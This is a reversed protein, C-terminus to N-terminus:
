GEEDEMQERLRDLTVSPNVMERYIKGIDDSVDLFRNWEGETKSLYYRCSDAVKHKKSFLDIAELFNSSHTTILITLDFEKQLLVIVEAYILEWEPHLHIEPEDLILVDKEKLLGNELLIRLILFSKIGTSLNSLKIPTELNSDIALDNDFAVIKGEVVSHFMEHLELHHLKKKAELIEFLRDFHFDYSLKSILHEEISPVRDFDGGVEERNKVRDLVFPNDIYFAEHLIGIKSELSSCEHQNFFLLLESNQIELEIKASSVTDRLCNVQHNFIKSFYRTIVEKKIEFDEYKMKSEAIIKANSLLEERKRESVMLLNSESFFHNIIDKIEKKNEFIEDAIKKSWFNVVSLERVGVYTTTSLFFHMLAKRLEECIKDYKKKEIKEELKYLANFFSFLIKGVTSKGTNNRGAIVTIGKFEIEAEKISAFDSVKLVM